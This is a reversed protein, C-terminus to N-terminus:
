ALQLANFLPPPVCAVVCRAIEGADMKMDDHIWDVTFRIDLIAQGHAAFKLEPSLEARKVETLMRIFIQEAHRIAIEHVDPRDIVNHFFIAEQAMLMFYNTYADLWSFTRGIEAITISRMYLSYWTLMGDKSGFLRYFTQRSVGCRSVIEQVSIDKIPRDVARIIKLKLEHEAPLFFVKTDM